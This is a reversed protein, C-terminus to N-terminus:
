DNINSKEHNELYFVRQELKHMRDETQILKKSTEIAQQDIRDTVDDKKNNIFFSLIFLVIASILLIDSIM